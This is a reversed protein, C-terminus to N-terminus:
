IICVSTILKLTLGSDLGKVYLNLMLTKHTLSLVLILKAHSSLQEKYM